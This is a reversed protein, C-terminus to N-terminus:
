GNKKMIGVGGKERFANRLQFNLCAFPLIFTSLYVNKKVKIKININQQYNFTNCIFISNRIKTNEM